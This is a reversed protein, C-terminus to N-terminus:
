PSPRRRMAQPTHRGPQPSRASYKSKAPMCGLGMVTLAVPIGTKEAFARLEVSAGSSVVGSGAYIIPKKAQRIADVVRRVDRSSAERYPNYGPLDMPPDFDPLIKKMQVDKPVDVIVPGPRGTSAIYFAEKM